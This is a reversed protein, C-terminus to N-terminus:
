GGYGGGFGGGGYAGGFAVGGGGFAGYGGQGGHGGRDYRDNSGRDFGGHDPGGGKGGRGGDEREKPPRAVSVNIPDPADERFRYVGHLVQIATKAAEATEYTVFAARQERDGPNLLHVGAVVGYTGFIM